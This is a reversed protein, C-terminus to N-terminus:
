WRRRYFPDELIRWIAIDLILYSGANIILVSLWVQRKPFEPELNVLISGEILVSLVYLVTILGLYLFLILPYNDEYRSFELLEYLIRAPIDVRFM